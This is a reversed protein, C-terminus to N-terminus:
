TWVGVPKGIFWGKNTYPCQTSRSLSKWGLCILLICWTMGIIVITRSMVWLQQTMWMCFRCIHDLPFHCPHVTVSGQTVDEQSSTNRWWYDASIATLALTLTSKTSSFSVGSLKRIFVFGRLLDCLWESVQNYILHNLEFSSSLCCQM